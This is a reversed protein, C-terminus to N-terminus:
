KVNSIFITIKIKVSVSKYFFDFCKQVRIDQMMEEEQIKLEDGDWAQEITDLMQLQSRTFQNQMVRFKNTQKNSDTLDFAM